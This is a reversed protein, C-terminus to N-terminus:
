KSKGELEQIAVRWPRSKMGGSDLFEIRRELEARWLGSTIDYEDEDVQALAAIAQILLL